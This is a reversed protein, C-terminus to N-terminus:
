LLKELIKLAEVGDDTQLYSTVTSIGEDGFPVTLMKKKNTVTNYWVEKNNKRFQIIGNDFFMKVKAQLKLEPDRSVSLFDEPYQRAFILIDRKIEATSIKSVDIGFIVSAMNEMQDLSLQRAEILADVELTLMEVDESADREKNVEEFKMNNMPHYYLFKQLIQNNKPVHLFGDEFIIPEIIANGDQEDEFPTKQNRAYRLPRNVGADEDFWLLPYRKTNRTPLMFTLPAIDRKLKYTKGVYKEKTKM